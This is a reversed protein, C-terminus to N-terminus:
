KKCLYFPGCQVSCFMILFDHLLNHLNRGNQKIVLFHSTLNELENDNKDLKEFGLPPYLYVDCKLPPHLYAITVYM